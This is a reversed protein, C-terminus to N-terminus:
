RTRLNGSPPGAAKLARLITKRRSFDGAVARVARDIARAAGYGRFAARDPARGFTAAFAAAFPEGDMTAANAASNGVTDVFYPLGGVIRSRISEALGPPFIGTLFEIERGAVLERISARVSEPGKGADVILLYVDLGGLHGDSEEDAHGDRERAALMFGDRASAGVRAEPGSVPAIFGVRFGHAGAPMAALWVIAALGLGKYKADSIM